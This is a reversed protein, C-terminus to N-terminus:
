SLGLRKLHGASSESNEESKDQPQKPQQKDSSGNKGKGTAPAVNEPYEIRHHYIGSLIKNFSKAINNLDKLTLECNDLQGDSFIKNILNQVLGQIRAPTPNDLTRSAAELVDALMVLGVERTQPKPGPYRFDDINVGDDEKQQKAKEYFFSILSTGHHQQITDTIATGLKHEKAIEVGGKIHAILILSSMSPSLKDHRNKGDKQNEIFYLPKKIKGIDHYYGCVRALLPNAGIESAAAEVMTGVIVSHHYTGPAELMLRRLIPRDLNALELLTIDTTYAFTIEILPALGATVIGSACGGLFVLSWDSLFNFWSYEAMYINIATILVVNFLGLKLGAKIFVKRERCHQMWYAGMTSSLLYYIFIDFRNKFIIAICVAMVLAFPIAIDLGMFLCIIMAGATFPLSFYFHSQSIPLQASVKATLAFIILVCAIFLLNKNRNLAFESNNNIYILYFVWLLCLMLLATGMSTILMEKKTAQDQLMNIKQLNDETVREGERLLMEGVKIQYLFPKVAEAAKKIRDETESKNLTINPQLLRQVFDVVLSRVSYSTDKFLPQAVIRVMTKAQDPGYYQKLNLFTKETKTGLPRLVIGKDYEKLLIEKNAVVGNALIFKLIKGILAEIDESFKEKELIKYAGKSVSIGIKEEFEDKMDQVQAHISKKVESSPTEAPAATSPAKPSRHNKEASLVARLESFALHIRQIIDDSLGTDYDYVTLVANKAKQRNAKTTEIDEYFFERQSKIDKRAIDGVKYAHKKIVLDPYLIIIFVATLVMLFGWPAKNGLSFVKDISEKKIEVSM